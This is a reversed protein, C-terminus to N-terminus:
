AGGRGLAIRRIACVTLPGRDQRPTGRALAVGLGQPNVGSAERPRGSAWQPGGRSSVPGAGLAPSPTQPPADPCGAGPGRRAFGPRPDRGGLVVPTRMEPHVGVCTRGFGASLWPMLWRTMARVAGWGAGVRRVIAAASTNSATTRAPREPVTRTFTEPSGGASSTECQGTSPLRHPDTGCADSAMDCVAEVGRSAAEARGGSPGGALPPHLGVEKTRRKRDM